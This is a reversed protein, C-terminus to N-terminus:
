RKRLAGKVMNMPCVWSSAQRRSPSANTSICGKCVGGGPYGAGISSFGGSIYDYYQSIALATPLNEPNGPLAAGEVTFPRGLAEAAADCSTAM